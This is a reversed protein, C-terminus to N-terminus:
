TKGYHCPKGVTCSALFEEKHSQMPQDASQRNTKILDLVNNWQKKAQNRLFQVAYIERRNPTPCPQDLLMPGMLQGTKDVDDLGILHGLEHAIVENLQTSSLPTKNYNTQIYITGSVITEYRTKNWRYEKKLEILGLADHGSRPVKEVFKITLDADKPNSVFDVPNDSGLTDNWTKIAKSLGDKAAQSPQTNTPDLAVQVGDKYFVGDLLALSLQFDRKSQAELAEQLSSVVSKHVEYPVDITNSKNNNAEWGTQQPVFLALALPLSAIM